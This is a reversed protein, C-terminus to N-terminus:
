TVNTDCVGKAFAVVIIVEAEVNVGVVRERVRRNM